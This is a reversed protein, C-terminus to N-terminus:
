GGMLAQTKLTTEGEPRGVLFRYVGKREGM